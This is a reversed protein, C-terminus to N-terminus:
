LFNIPLEQKVTIPHLGRDSKDVEITIPHSSEPSRKSESNVPPDTMVGVVVYLLAFFILTLNGALAPRNYPHLLRAFFTYIFNMVSKFSFSTYSDSRTSRPCIATGM